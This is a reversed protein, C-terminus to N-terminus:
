ILSRQLEEEMDKRIYGPPPKRQWFSVHCPLILNERKNVNERIIKMIVHVGSAACRKTFYTFLFRIESLTNKMGVITRFALKRHVILMRHHIKMIKTKYSIHERIKHCIAAM